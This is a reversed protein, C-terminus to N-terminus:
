GLLIRKEASTGETPIGNKARLMRLIASPSMKGFNVGIIGRQRCYEELEKIDEEPYVINEPNCGFPSISDRNKLFLKHPDFEGDSPKVPVIENRRMLAMGTDYNSTNFNLYDM